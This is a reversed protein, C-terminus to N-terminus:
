FGTLRYIIRFRGVGFSKLGALEKKLSKGVHPDSLIIKLSSKIKKKIEPHMHRVFDATEDPMKLKYSLPM